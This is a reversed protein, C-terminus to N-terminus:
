KSSKEILELINRVDESKQLNIVLTRDKLNIVAVNNLGVVATVKDHSIILNDSSDYTIVHGETANNNEDKSLLDYLALWTGLDSWKLSTKICYSEKTKEMVAYDISEKPLMEWIQDIENLSHINSFLKGIEPVHLDLEDIMTQVKFFFMGSNWLNNVDKVLKSANEFSPKEIFRNVKSIEDEKADNVNIYGYSTSPYSPTLGITVIGRKNKEIFGEITTIASYLKENNKIYHDAPYIGITANNDIKLIHKCALYIAPATNKPSPEYIINEVKANPIEEKIQKEYKNSTVIFINNASSINLLREYTLSILSENNVLKLFQKPKNETSMPWFRSGVGGAIIVHYMM